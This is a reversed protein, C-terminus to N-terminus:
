RGRLEPHRREMEQQFEDLSMTRGADADAIGALVSEELTKGSRYGDIPEDAAGAGNPGAHDPSAENRETTPSPILRFTGGTRPDRLRLGAPSDLAAAFEPPLDFVTPAADTSSADTPAAPADTDM